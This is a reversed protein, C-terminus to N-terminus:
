ELLVLIQRAKRPAKLLDKKRTLHTKKIDTTQPNLEEQLDNAAFRYWGICTAQGDDGSSGGHKLTPYM